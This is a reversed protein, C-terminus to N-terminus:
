DSRENNGTQPITTSAALFDDLQQQTVRYHTGFKNAAMKGNRIYKWITTKKLGLQEAIEEPTYIKDM